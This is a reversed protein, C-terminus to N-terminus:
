NLTYDHGVVMAEDLDVERRDQAQRLAKPTEACDARSFNM